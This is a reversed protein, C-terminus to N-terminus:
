EPYHMWWENENISYYPRYHHIAETPLVMPVLNDLSYSKEGIYAVVIAHDEAIDVDRLVVVRLDAASWGLKRLTFYKAIAYDKCDGDKVVLERPTEWYYADLRYVHQNIFANVDDLEAAQSHGQERAIFAKWAVIMCAPRPEADACSADGAKEEDFNRQLMSMWKPFKQITSSATERTDFIPPYIRGEARAGSGALLGAAFVLGSLLLAAIPGHKLSHNERPESMSCSEARAIATNKRM